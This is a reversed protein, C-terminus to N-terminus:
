DGVAHDPVRTLTTRPTARKMELAYVFETVVDAKYVRQEHDRDSRYRAYDVAYKNFTGSQGYESFVEEVAEPPIIGENNYSLLVFRANINSILDRFAAVCEGAVSWKSKLDADPILGTKGRLTPEGELWGRALLEPVHYYSSYQRTNYPPDLYVVDVYGLRRVFENADVQNARCNLRTDVVLQPESLRLPKLANGQWSKVFAAYVGTTNAVSDAAEILCSLLLYYEDESLLEASRWDQLKIRIADIRRGNALTFFMRAGNTDRELESASFERSVFSTAPDLFSDLYVLIQHLGDTRSAPAAFLDEQNRFRSAVLTRFDARQATRALEADMELVHVFGPISDLEVYARQFAYSYTMIDSSVTAFGRSKLYQAVSATGAFPDAATGGRLDLTDLVSGIFRLLKTKNGIYRM